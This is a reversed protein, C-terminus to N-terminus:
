YVYSFFLFGIIAASLLIIISILGAKILNVLRNMLHDPVKSLFKPEVAVKKQLNLGALVTSAEFPIDNVTSEPMLTLANGLRALRFQQVVEHTDFPIDNVESESPVKSFSSGYLEINLQKILATNFPIDNVDTDPRLEVGVMANNFFYEITIEHTDFPIDNVEKEASPMPIDAITIAMGRVNSILAIIFLFSFALSSIKGPINNLTKM